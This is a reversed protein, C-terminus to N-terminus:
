HIQSFTDNYNWQNLIRLERTRARKKVDVMRM